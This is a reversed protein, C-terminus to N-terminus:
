EVKQDSASVGRGVCECVQVLIHIYMGTYCQLERTEGECNKVKVWERSAVTARKQSIDFWFISSSKLIKNEVQRLM